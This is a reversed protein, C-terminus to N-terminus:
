KEYLWKEPLYTYDLIEEPTFYIGIERDASEPSDSGHIINRGIDLAFDGRITGPAAELPNTVGMIKRVEKIVNNGSLVMAVVPGSTIYEVLGDYFPKGQHEAYHQAALEDTVQMIKLGLIKFGKNEFRKIIEGVFGRQVGDPKIMAFTKEM